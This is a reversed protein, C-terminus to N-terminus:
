EIARDEFTAVFSVSNYTKLKLLDSLVSSINKNSLHLITYGFPMCFIGWVRSRIRKEWIWILVFEFRGDGCQRSIRNCGILERRGYHNLISKRWYFSFFSNKKLELFSRMWTLWGRERDGLRFDDCNLTPSEGVEPM